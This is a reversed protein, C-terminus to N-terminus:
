KVHEKVTAMDARLQALTRDLVLNTSKLNNMGKSLVVAAMGAVVLGVVLYGWQDPVGAVVLWRVIAQLLLFMAGLAAIAGVAVLTGGNAIKGLRENIEVRILRIETEFLHTIDGLVDTLLNGITRHDERYAM